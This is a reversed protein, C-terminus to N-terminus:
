PERAMTRLKGPRTSDVESLPVPASQRLSVTAHSLLSIMVAMEMAPVEMAAVVAMLAAVTMEM